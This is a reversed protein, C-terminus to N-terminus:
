DEVTAFFFASAELDVFTEQFRQLDQVADAIVPEALKEELDRASAVYVELIGDYPLKTGRAMIVKLNAEVALTSSIEVRVAGLRLAIERMRRGYESFSRRFEAITLHDKGKICQIYQIM